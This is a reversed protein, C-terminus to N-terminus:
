EEFKNLILQEAFAKVAEVKMPEIAESIFAQQLISRAQADSLGRSRLYFVSTEDLQGITAGHSCRVDDAYIELEPKSDMVAKDSLVLSSNQQFANTKQADRRVLVKGNFVGRAKDTLIGKYLENSQCHPVAHDIFTHNDIHQAEKGFYAGYYNTTIGSGLHLANMNNRVWRAGLDVVYSSYTSDREQDIDVNSLFFTEKGEKQIRYHHVHANSDVSFCNAVNEFYTGQAGPLEFYADIITFESNNEAKLLRTQNVMMPTNGPAALNLCYVPKEIAKGAAVHIYLGSRIFAANLSRFPDGTSLALKDLQRQVEGAYQENMLAQGLDMIILDGSAVMEDSLGADLIGNVFVLLHADLEPILFPAIDDQNLAVHTGEQYAIQLLPNVSTYKWDEDRRTPFPQEHLAQIAKQRIDHLPYQKHGNLRAEQAIFLQQFRDKVEAYRDQVTTTM